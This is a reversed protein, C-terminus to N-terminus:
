RVPGMGSDWTHFIPAGVAQRTKVFYEFEDRKVGILKPDFPTHVYDFVPWRTFNCAQKALHKVSIETGTVGRFIDAAEELSIHEPVPGAVAAQEAKRKERRARERALKEDRNARRYARNKASQCERCRGVPRGTRSSEYFDAAPLERGCNPCIRTKM